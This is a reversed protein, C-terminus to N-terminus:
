RQNNNNRRNNNDNNNNTNQNSTSNNYRNNNDNYRNNNDNYRNNNYRNNNDNYRNYNNRYNSRGRGKYGGRNSSKNHNISGIPSNPFALILGPCHMRSHDNSYCWVCIHLYQCNKNTCKGRNWDFCTIVKNSNLNINFKANSKMSEYLGSLPILAKDLAHANFVAILQQTACLPTFYFLSKNFEDLIQLYLKNIKENGKINDKKVMKKAYVKICNIVIFGIKGNKITFNKTINDLCKELSLKKDVQVSILENKYTLIEPNTSNLSIVMKNGLLSNNLLYKNKKNSQKLLKLELDTHNLYKGHIAKQM